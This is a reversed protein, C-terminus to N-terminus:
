VNWLIVFCEIFNSASGVVAKYMKRNVLKRLIAALIITGYGNISNVTTGLDLKKLRPLRKTPHGVSGTQRDTQAWLHSLPLQQYHNSLQLELPLHFLPKTLLMDHSWQQCDYVSVM